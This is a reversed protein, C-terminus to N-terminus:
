NDWYRHIKQARERNRRRLEANRKRRAAGRKALISCAHHYDRAEGRDVMNQARESISLPRM